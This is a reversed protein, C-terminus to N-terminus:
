KIIKLQRARKIALARKKVELKSYINCIHWKVTGTTIFLNEAIENNSMDEAMLEIIEIERSSLSDVIRNQNKTKAIDLQRVFVEETGDISHVLELLEDDEDLFKRLYGEPAAISLAERVYELAEATRSCRMHTLAKLLLVSILEGNRECKREFAEMDDLATKIKDIEDAAIMARLYTYYLYSDPITYSKKIISHSEKLWSKIKNMNRDRLYLEIETAELFISIEKSASERNAAKLENIRSFARAKYGKSYLTRVLFCDGIDGFHYFGMERCFTLGKELYVQAEDLQNSQYLLIGIFLYVMGAMNSCSGQQDTYDELAERCLALADTRKGLIDYCIVINGLLIMEMSYYGKGHIMYYIELFLSVAESYNSRGAKADGLAMLAWYYFFEDTDKLQRIAEESAKLSMNQDKSAYEFAQYIQIIGMVVPNDKIEPKKQLSEVISHAEYIEGMTMLLFVRYAGILVDCDENIDVLSNLKLLLSLLNGSKLFKIAEQKILSEAAGGDKVELAYELAEESYGKEKFWLGAKRCIEHRQREGLMQQLFESFLHHYRYWTRSNDLPIIFLNDKELQEIIGTCNDLGTVETCLEACFKNLVCTKELFNRIQLTQNKLIEDMLYDAIYNNNGRIQEVLNKTRAAGSHNMSLGALQMSAAWGETSEKVVKLISDDININFKSNLFERIEDEDFKLDQTRLEIVQNRVRLRPLSLPPDQRTLMVLIINLGAADLLNQIFEHIYNCGIFHYDDLVIVLPIDFQELEKITQTCVTKLDPLSPTAILNLIARGFNDNIKRIAAIFYSIFRVPDNDYRDLNLWTSRCDARNIWGSVLTTKGYGAPASLLLLRKGGKCGEDLRSYLHERHIKNSNSYPIFLKTDLILMEDM